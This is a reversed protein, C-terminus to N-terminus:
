MRTYDHIYELSQQNYEEKIIEWIEPIYDKIHQKRIKDLIKTNRALHALGFERDDTLITDIAPIIHTNPNTVWESYEENLMLEKTKYLEKDRIEKPICLISCWVPDSVLNAHVLVGLDAAWKVTDYLNFLNYAQFAFSILDQEAYIMNNYVQINNNITNFKVPHRIYEVVKGTGDVSYNFSIRTFQKIKNMFQETTNTCNTTLHLPVTTNNTEILRDLIDNVEPMITPEGGLFKIQKGKDINKLLFELNKESYVEDVEVVPDYGRFLEPNQLQEKELQSSSQPGCMRCKLNCLNGPRLELDIPSNHQNGTEINTELLIDQYRTNYNMRDSIGNHKETTFCNTCKVPEEGDLFQQRITKYYDSQWRKELDLETSPTTPIYETTQCCIRQEGKAVYMHVFPAACFTKSINKLEM